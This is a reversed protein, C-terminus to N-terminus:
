EFSRRSEAHRSAIVVIQCDCSLALQVLEFWGGVRERETRVRFM